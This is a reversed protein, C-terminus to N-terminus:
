GKGKTLWLSIRQSDTETKYILGNTGKKKQSWTDTMDHPIQRWRDPKGRNTHYDRPVDMNNFIANNWDKNYSLLLGNHIHEVDEKDMWTDMSM